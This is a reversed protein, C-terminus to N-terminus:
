WRYYRRRRFWAILGPVVGRRKLPFVLLVGTLFGGIHAFWAVGGLASLDVIGSFFQLLFWFGLFLFAPVEVFHLFFFFPVLTLIRSWPFLVFYAGMVGSIAGSAGVMPATSHPSAVLQLFAAGVGAALYFILFKLHGLAGEVNDGFIWLYLMNGLIHLLGGHLFMSTFITLWIPFPVGPPLDEGRWFEAPILGFRIVFFDRESVPYLCGRGGSFLLYARQDFGPPIAKPGLAAQWACGDIMVVQSGSYTLQYAYVLLNLLILGVTVYPTIGSPRFDRIPIMDQRM